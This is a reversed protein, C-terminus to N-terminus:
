GNKWRNFIQLAQDPLGSMQWAHRHMRAHEAADLGGRQAKEFRSKPSTNNKNWTEILPSRSFKDLRPRRGQDLGFIIKRRIQDRATQRLNSVYHPKLKPDVNLLRSLVADPIPIAEVLAYIRLEPPSRVPLLRAFEEESLGWRSSM